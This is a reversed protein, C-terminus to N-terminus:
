KKINVEISIVVNPNEKIIDRFCNKCPKYIGKKETPQLENGCNSCYQKKM